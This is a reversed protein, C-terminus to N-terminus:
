CDKVDNFPNPYIELKIVESNEVVSTPPNNYTFDNSAVTCGNADVVTVSYTEAAYVTYNNGGGVNTFVGVPYERKWTYM